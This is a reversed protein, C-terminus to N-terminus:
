CLWPLHILCMPEAGVFAHMIPAFGRYGGTTALGGALSLGTTSLLQPAPKSSCSLSSLSPCGMTAIGTRPVICGTSQLRCGHWSSLLWSTTM